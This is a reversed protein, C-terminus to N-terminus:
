AAVAEELTFAFDEMVMNSLLKECAETVQASAAEENDAEIWLEIYKGMRVKEIGYFGLESLAHKTAKGQPDLISQRLTINITAKYM